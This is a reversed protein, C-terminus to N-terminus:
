CEARRMVGDRDQPVQPSALVVSRGLDAGGLVPVNPKAPALLVVRSVGGDGFERIAAALADDAERSTPTDLGVDLALTTSGARAIGRVVRALYDRPVPSRGGFGEFADEDIAVIVVGSPQQPARLRYLTDLAWSQARELYGLGSALGVVVCAALGVAWIQLLRHRRARWWTALTM